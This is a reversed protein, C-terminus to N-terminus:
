LDKAVSQLVLHSVKNFGLAKSGRDEKICLLCIKLLSPSSIFWPVPQQDLIKLVYWAPNCNIAVSVKIELTTHKNMISNGREGGGKLALVM